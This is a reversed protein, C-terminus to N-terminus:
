FLAFITSAQAVSILRWDRYGNPIETVYTPRESRQNQESARSAFAAIAGAGAVAGLM